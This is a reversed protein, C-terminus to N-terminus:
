NDTRRAGVVLLAGCALLALGLLGLERGEIGTFPLVETELVEDAVSPSTPAQTTSVQTDIVAATTTTEPLTSTTVVTPSVEATTTTTTTTTTPEEEHCEVTVEIGASFIEDPGMVLSVTVVEGLELLETAEVIRGPESEVDSLVVQSTGSEVVLDNGPHVSSQNEAHAAVECMHGAFGDPVDASALPTTSDEDADVFTDIPISIELYAHSAAASTALATVMLLVAGIAVPIRGPAGTPTFKM